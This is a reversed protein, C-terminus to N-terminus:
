TEIFFFVRMDYVLRQIVLATDCKVSFRPRKLTNPAVRPNHGQDHACKLVTQIEFDIDRPNSKHYLHHKDFRFVVGHNRFIQQLHHLEQEKSTDFSGTVETQEVLGETAKLREHARIRM